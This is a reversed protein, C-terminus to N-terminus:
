GELSSASSDAIQLMQQASLPQWPINKSFVSAGKASPYVGLCVYKKGDLQYKSGVKFVGSEAKTALVGRTQYDDTGVTRLVVFAYNNGGVPAGFNQGSTPLSSTQKPAAQSAPAKRKMSPLRPEVNVSIPEDVQGPEIKSKVKTEAAPAPKSIVEKTTTKTIPAAVKTQSSPAKSVLDKLRSKTREVAEWNKKSLKKQEAKLGKLSAAPVGVEDYPRPPTVPTPTIDHEFPVSVVVSDVEEAFLHKKHKPLPGEPGYAKNLDGRAHITTERADYQDKIIRPTIFVLLNTKTATTQETKFLHGLVPIDEFFPIGRSANTLDDSILGGTVVMQADKVEVTTETTRITTTPGNPSNRTDPVVNSIEVFIALNVFDGQSIQPTIRLTIGVDQREISNFTNNLNTANTGTSTIFPVNEGVIIEAEQNDTALVTPASLVNINSHVSLATVLAAQTPISIGGPLTLSGTSAAAITLDTLATPNTFLNTLGGFNSQALFGADSQGLAGQLEVGFGEQETLRVELLTAEVLVQRRKVDLEDIVDKLRMYDSRAANIIISNTSPDPAISVEGEFNVRGNPASTRGSRSITRTRPAATRRATQAAAATQSSSRSLSSGTTRGTSNDSSSTAGSILNNLIESLSEADAHKLRYVYFRGSSLDLPSDLKEVLAKVKATLEPDAVVILSNTREDAIVKLPLRRKVPGSAAAAQNTSRRGASTRARQAASRASARTTTAPRASSSEDEGLIENIKQAIDAVEAHTVPIITIDQDTAPVDLKEVLALLRSINAASDIIILSNTGEFNNVGGDSSVFQTLVQQMDQAPVHKLRVMQTVLVDSPHDPSEYVIPITTTKATKSSVVKWVNDGVPVTTYGKLLLVSDFIRLAESMSVPTPLHITIKGKVGADVIYNRGTVKSISKILAAIDIDKANLNLESPAPKDLAILEDTSSGVSSDDNDSSPDEEILDVIDKQEVEDLPLLASYIQDDEITESGFDSVQAFTISTFSLISFFAALLVITVRPLRSLSNNQNKDAM